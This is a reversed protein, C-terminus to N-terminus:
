KRKLIEEISPRKRPAMIPPWEKALRANTDKTCDPLTLFIDDEETALRIQSHSDADMFSACGYGWRIVPWHPVPTPDYDLWGELNSEIVEGEGGTIVFANRETPDFSELLHWSKSNINFVPYYKEYGNM